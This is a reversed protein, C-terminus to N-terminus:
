PTPEVFPEGDTAACEVVQRISEVVLAWDDLHIWHGAGTATVHRGRSSSAAIREHANRRSAPQGAASIVVLPLSGPREEIQSVEAASAALGDLHRAMSTFAKPQSWHARVAPWVAPPLKQVEGVMRSMLSAAESGFLRSVRRPVGTAGRTLLDLCLRVFGVHALIAGARALLVGGQVRRREAAVLDLWEAPDVPDVLVMGATEDRYRSAFMRLVLSGFSHGVLVYPPPVGATVLLAHLDDALRSATIPIRPPDSWALGTRDYSCARAFTAVRPQVLSWTLSSAALGADLVVVPTGTGQCHLHLRRGGGIDVLRGPPLVLVRDRATGRHQYFVGALLAVLLVALMWATVGMSPLMSGTRVPGTVDELM